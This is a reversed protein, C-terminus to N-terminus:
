LLEDVLARLARYTLAEYEKDRRAHNDIAFQLDKLLKSKENKKMNRVIEELTHL